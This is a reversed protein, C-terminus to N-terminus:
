PARALRNVRLSAHTAGLLGAVAADRASDAEYILVSRVVQKAARVSTEAWTDFQTHEDTPAGLALGQLGAGKFRAFESPNVSDMRGIVFLTVARVLSVASLLPGQPVGSLESIECIIGRQVLQQAARLRNIIESRGAQYSLSTYSAPIILIIPRDDGIKAQLHSLGRTITALDIRLIDQRALKAVETPTLPEEADEIFAERVLRFGIQAFTKLEYVPALSCSIRISRGDVAVFPNWEGLERQQGDEARRDRAEAIEVGRADVQRAEIWQDSIKTVEHVGIDALHAAGLFHELIERLCRLCAAQTTFRSLRPQCVLYDAESTRLFSGQDGLRRQLVRDVHAYVQERRLAWRRGFRARVAELSIINVQGATLLAPDDFRAIWPGLEAATLRQVGTLKTLTEVPASVEKASTPAVKGM